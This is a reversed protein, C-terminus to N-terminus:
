KKDHKDDDIVIYSIIITKSKTMLILKHSELKDFENNLVIYSMALNYDQKNKHKDASEDFYRSLDLNDREAKCPVVQLDVSVGIKRMCSDVHLFDEQTLADLDFNGDEEAFLHHLGHKLIKTLFWFMDTTNEIGDMTVHKINQNYNTHKTHRTHSKDKDIKQFIIQISEEFSLSM